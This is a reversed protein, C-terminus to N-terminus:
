PVSLSVPVAAFSARKHDMERVSHEGMGEDGVEGGGDGTTTRGDGKEYSGRARRRNGM